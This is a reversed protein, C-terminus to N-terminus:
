NETLGNEEEKEILDVDGIWNCLVVVSPAPWM